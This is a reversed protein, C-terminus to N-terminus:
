EKKEGVKESLPLFWEPFSHCSVTCIWVTKHSIFFGKEEFLPFIRMSKENFPHEWQLYNRRPIGQVDLLPHTPLNWCERTNGSIVVTLKLVLFYRLPIIWTCVQGPILYIWLCTWVLM